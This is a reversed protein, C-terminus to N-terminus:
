FAELLGFYVGFADKGFAADLRLNIAEQRSVRFRLGLGASSYVSRGASDALDGGIVGLGGFLAGGLRQYLPVRWEAQVVALNRDLYRGSYYGRMLSIDRIDGIRSMEQFPVRGWQLNAYQQVALTGSAGTRVYQRADVRLRQFAHNGFASDFHMGSIELYGGSSPAFRDDRSDRVVLVGAGGVRAGGAGPIDGRALIGGAEVDRVRSDSFEARGGFQWRGAVPFRVSVAAGPGRATFSEEDRRRSDHGVGFFDDPWDKYSLKGSVWARNGSLPQETVLLFRSQRRQSYAALATLSSPHAEQPGRSYRLASLIIATETEPAYVPFPIVM